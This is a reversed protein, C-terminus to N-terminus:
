GATAKAEPCLCYEYSSSHNRHNPQLVYNEVLGLPFGFQLYQLIALDSFYHPLLERFRNVNIKSHKLPVRAGNFNFTKFSSVQQHLSIFYNTDFQVNPEFTCLKPLKKDVFLGGDNLDLYLPKLTGNIIDKPAPELSLNLLLDAEM